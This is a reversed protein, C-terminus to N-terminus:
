TASKPGVTMLWPPHDPIASAQNDEHGAYDSDFRRRTEATVTDALGAQEAQHTGQGAFQSRVPDADVGDPRAEDLRPEGTGEHVIGLGVFAKHRVGGESPM